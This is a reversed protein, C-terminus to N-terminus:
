LKSKKESPAGGPAAAAATKNRTSAPTPAPVPPAGAAAAKRESARLQLPVRLLPKPTAPAAPATTAAPAPAAPAPAAPAAATPAPVHTPLVHATRLVRVPLEASYRSAVVIANGDSWALSGIGSGFIQLPRRIARVDDRTNVVQLNGDEGGFALFTASPDFGLAATECGMAYTTRPKTFNRWEYLFTEKKGAMAFASGTNSFTFAAHRQLRERPWQVTRFTATPERLDYVRVCDSSTVAVHAGDPHVSVLDPTVREHSVRSIVRATEVDWIAWSSGGCSVGLTGHPHLAISSTGSSHVDRVCMTEHYAVGAGQSWRRVGDYDASFITFGDPAWAVDNVRLKFDSRLESVVAGANVDYIQVARKVGIVAAFALIHTRGSAPCAVLKDVTDGAGFPAISAADSLTMM